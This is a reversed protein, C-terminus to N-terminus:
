IKKTTNNEHKYELLNYFFVIFIKLPVYFDKKALTRHKIHCHFNTYMKFM